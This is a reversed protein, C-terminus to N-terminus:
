RPALDTRYINTGREIIEFSGSSPLNGSEGLSAMAGRFPGGRNVLRRGSGQGAPIPRNAEPPNIRLELTQSSNRRRHTPKGIPSLPPPPLPEQNTSIM